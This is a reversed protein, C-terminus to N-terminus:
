IKKQWAWYVVFGGSVAVAAVVLTSFIGAPVYSLANIDIFESTGLNLAGLGALYKMTRELMKNMKM